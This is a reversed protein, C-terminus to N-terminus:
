RAPEISTHLGQPIALSDKETIRFYFGWNLEAQGIKLLVASRGKPLTVPVIDNDITASRSVKNNWVEKGNLFVKVSDNSGVRFAVDKPGDDLTVWCLAYACTWSSDEFEKVLDVYGQWEATRNKTWTVRRGGKGEYSAATDIGKEPPYARDHGEMGANDFPGCLLWRNIFGFQPAFRDATGASTKEHAINALLYDEDIAAMRDITASLLELAGKYVEFTTSSDARRIKLYSDMETFSLRVMEVRRKVVPSVTKAEAAELAKRCGEVVAPTFYKPYDVLGWGAKRDLKRLAAALTDHYQAMDPGAERFFSRMLDAFLEPGNQSANWMCQAAIYYNPFYAAWSNQGEFYVGKVGIEKYAAMARM